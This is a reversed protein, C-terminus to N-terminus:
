VANSRAIRFTLEHVFALSRDRPEEIPQPAAPPPWSGCGFAGDFVEMLFNHGNPVDDPPPYPRKMPERERRYTRCERQVEDRDERLADAVSVHTWVVRLLQDYLNGSGLEFLAVHEFPEDLV